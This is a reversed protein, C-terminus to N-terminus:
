GEEGSKPEQRLSADDHITGLQDTEHSPLTGRKLGDNAITRADPRQDLLIGPIKPLDIM